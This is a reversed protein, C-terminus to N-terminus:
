PRGSLNATDRQGYRYEEVLTELLNNRIDRIPSHHSHILLLDMRMMRGNSVNPIIVKM